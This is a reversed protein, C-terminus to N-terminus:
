GDCECVELSDVPELYKKTSLSWINKKGKKKGKQEKKLKKRGV